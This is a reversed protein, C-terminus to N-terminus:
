VHSIILIGLLPASYSFLHLFGLATYGDIEASPRMQPEAKAKATPNFEYQYM